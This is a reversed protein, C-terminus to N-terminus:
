RRGLSRDRHLPPTLAPHRAPGMALRGGTGANGHPLLGAPGLPGGVGVGKGRWSGVDLRTVSAGFARMADATSIVDAGELLGEISTEGLALAGLMLARHSISKDGPPRVTGKLPGTRVARLARTADHTPM